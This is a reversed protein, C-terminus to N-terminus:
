LLQALYYGIGVVGIATAATTILPANSAAGGSAKGTEPDYNAFRSRPANCQPCKYDKGQEGFPTPLTYVYGCDVCVHTAREKQAASLKRGGFRPPSPRKPLRKVDVTAAIKADRVIVFDVQSSQSPPPPDPIRRELRTQTAIVIRTPAVYRRSQMSTAHRHACSHQRPSQRQPARRVQNPCANLASRVFGLQDAPWLEDGFFSSTYVVYDGAKLGAKAANGRASAIEVGGSVGKNSAKLNVGLPKEVTIITEGAAARTAVVRRAPGAAAVAKSRVRAGAFSSGRVATLPTAVTSLAAM